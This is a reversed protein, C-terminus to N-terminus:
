VGMNVMGETIADVSIDNLPDRLDLIEWRTESFYEWMRCRDGTLKMM